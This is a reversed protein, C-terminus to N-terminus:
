PAGGDGEGGDDKGQQSLVTAPLSGQENEEAIRLLETMSMTAMAVPIPGGGPGSVEKKEPQYLGYYRARMTRVAVQLNQKGTKVTELRCVLGAADRDGTQAAPQHLRILEDISAIAQNASLETADVKRLELRLVAPAHEMVLGELQRQVAKYASGKNKYGLEKAIQEYSAGARRLELARADNEAVAIGRRTTKRPKFPVRPM